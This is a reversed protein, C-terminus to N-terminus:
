EGQYQRDAQRQGSDGDIGAGEIQFPSFRLGDGIKGGDIARRVNAVGFRRHEGCQAVVALLAHHQLVAIREQEPL